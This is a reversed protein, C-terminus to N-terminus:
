GYLVQSQPPKLQASDIRYFRLKQLGLLTLYAPNLLLYRRWLRRPEQILRFLWELGYRQMLPPAQPLLGSHFNFAAGVALSPISVENRVEYTFIEQRPCGLGVFLISAGSSRVEAVMEKWETDDLKRFASARRGAIQLTPFQKLLNASLIDLLENSGGLLFISLGEKAAAECVDLMLKPGYVREPLKVGYLWRLAWRVPQGDPCILDFENLRYRHAEDLAGTMVGHV